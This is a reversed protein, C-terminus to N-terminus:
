RGLGVEINAILRVYFRVAAVFGAVAVREDTGHARATIDPEAPVPNFRFVQTSLDSLLPRGDAL